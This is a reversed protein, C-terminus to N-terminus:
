YVYYRIKLNIDIEKRTENILIKHGLNSTKHKVFMDDCKIINFKDSTPLYKVLFFCFTLFNNEAKIESFIRKPM